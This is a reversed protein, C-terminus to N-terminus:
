GSVAAPVVPLGSVEAIRTLYHRREEEPTRKAHFTSELWALVQEAEARTLPRGGSEKELERISAAPARVGSAHEAPDPNHNRTCALAKLVAGFFAENDIESM